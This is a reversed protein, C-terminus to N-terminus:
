PFDAFLDHPCSEYCARDWSTLISMRTTDLFVFSSLVRSELFKYAPRPTWFYLRVGSRRAPVNRPNSTDLSPQCHFSFDGTMLVGIRSREAFLRDLPVCDEKKRIM